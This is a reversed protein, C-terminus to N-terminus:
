GTSPATTFTIRTPEVVLAVGDAVVDLCVYFVYKWAEPMRLSTRRSRCDCSWGSPAWRFGAPRLCTHRRRASLGSSPPRCGTSYSRTCRRWCPGRRRKDSLEEILLFARPGLEGVPRSCFDGDERGLGHLSVHLPRHCRLLARRGARSEPPWRGYRASLSM